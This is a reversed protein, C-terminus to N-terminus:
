MLDAKIQATYWRKCLVLYVSFIYGRPTPAADPIPPTKALASEISFPTSTTSSVITDEDVATDEDESFVAAENEGDRTEEEVDDDSDEGTHQDIISGSRLWASMSAALQSTASVKSSGKRKLSTPPSAASAAASSSPSSSSISRLPVQPPSSFLKFEDDATKCDAILERPFEYRQPDPRTRFGLHQLKALMSPTARFDGTHLHVQSNPCEFLILAAGPCHNADLLTVRVGQVLYPRNFDLPHVLSRAVGLCTCV